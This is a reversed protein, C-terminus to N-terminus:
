RVNSKGDFNIKMLCGLSLSYTQNYKSTQNAMSKKQQDSLSQYVKLESYFSFKNTTKYSVGGGFLLGCEIRNDRKKNFLYKETYEEVKFSEIVQDDTLISDIINLINATAGEIKGTAWFGIYLGSNLFFNIKSPSKFNFQCYAPLQIYQNTKKQFLGAYRGTREIFYNKSITMPSLIFNLRENFSYNLKLGALYGSGPSKKTYSLDSINISSLNISFGAEAGVSLQAEVINETSFFLLGFFSNLLKKM